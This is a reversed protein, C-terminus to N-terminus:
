PSYNQPRDTGSNKPLLTTRTTSLWQPVEPENKKLSILINLFHRHTSTVKKLWYMVIIDKGPAKNNAAKNFIKNLVDSTLEYEKQEVNKCYDIELKPLWDANKNYQQEVGWINKWFLEMSEKSPPNEVSIEKDEKFKWYAAKPNMRSCPPAGLVVTGGLIKLFCCIVIPLIAYQKLFM